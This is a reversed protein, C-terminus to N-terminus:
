QGSKWASVSMFRLVIRQIFHASWTSFTSNVEAEERTVKLSESPIDKKNGILLKVSDHKTYQKVRKFYIALQTFTARDGIDFIILAGDADKGYPRSM